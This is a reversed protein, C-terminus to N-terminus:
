KVFLIFGLISDYVSEHLHYQAEENFQKFTKM